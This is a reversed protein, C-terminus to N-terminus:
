LFLTVFPHPLMGHSRHLRLRHPRERCCKWMSWAGRKPSLTALAQGLREHPPDVFRETTGTHTRRLCAIWACQKDRDRTYLILSVGPERAQSHASTREHITHTM